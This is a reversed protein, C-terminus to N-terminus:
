QFPWNLNFTFGSNCFPRTLGRTNMWRRWWSRFLINLARSINAMCILSATPFEKEKWELRQSRTGRILRKASLIQGSFHDTSRWNKNGSQNWIFGWADDSSFMWNWWITITRRRERERWWINVHFQISVKNGFMLSIVLLLVGWNLFRVPLIDKPPLPVNGPIWRILWNPFHPFLQFCSFSIDNFQPLEVIGSGRDRDRKTATRNNWHALSSRQRM